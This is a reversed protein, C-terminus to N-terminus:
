FPRTSSQVTTNRNFALYSGLFALGTGALLGWIIVFITSIVLGTSM